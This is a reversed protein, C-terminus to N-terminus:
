FEYQLNVGAGYSATEDLKERGNGLYFSEFGLVFNDELRYDVGFDIRGRYEASEGSDFKTNGVVGANSTDSVVLRLGPRLKLDGRATEVPIEFEAGLQLKTVAVTRRGESSQFAEMEDRAHSFDALPILTMGNGLQHTGEVRGQVLWRESDFSGNIPRSGATPVLDDAKNSSRGYLLRGEFYLPKSPDRAAFYPGVMWGNGTIEGSLGDGDPESGSRDFQLMGGLHLRESMRFHAGLTALLYDHEGYGDSTRSTSTAGWITEAQFNGTANVGRDNARLVFESARAGPNRLMPILRPQNDVLAEARAIAFAGRGVDRQPDNDVITMAVDFGTSEGPRAVEVRLVFQEEGEYIGDDIIEITVDNTNATGSTTFSVSNGRTQSAGTGVVLDGYDEGKFAPNAINHGMRTGDHLTLTWTWTGTFSHTSRLYFSNVPDPTGAGEDFKTRLVAVDNGFFPENDKLGEDNDVIRMEIRYDFDFAPNTATLQTSTTAGRVRLFFTETGEYLEDEIISFTILTTSGGSSQVNQIWTTDGSRLNEFDTFDTGKVAGNPGTGNELTAYIWYTQGSTWKRYWIYFDHTPSSRGHAEGFNTRQVGIDDNTFRGRDITQAAADGAAFLPVIAILLIGCVLANRVRSALRNAGDALPKSLLKSM